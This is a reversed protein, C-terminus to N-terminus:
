KSNAALFAKMSPVQSLFVEQFQQMVREPTFPATVDWNQAKIHEINQIVKIMELMCTTKNSFVSAKDGLNLLHQNHKWDFMCEHTLVPKNAASFEMCAIGFSEGLGKAHIMADCTNLFKRKFVPDVSPELFIVNSPVKFSNFTYPRPMFVFYANKHTNAIDIIAETVYRPDFCDAGGHRGFVVADKPIKLHERLDENTDALKIMHNVHPEGVTPSVGAYVTYNLKKEDIPRDRLHFVCHHLVPIKPPCDHSVSPESNIYYMADIKHKECLEAFEEMTKYYLVPFRASVQAVMNPDDLHPYMAPQRKFFFSKNGLLTENYEAYKNRADCTGRYNFHDVYFGINM